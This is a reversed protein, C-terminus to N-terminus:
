KKPGRYKQSAMHDFKPKIYTTIDDIVESINAKVLLSLVTKM